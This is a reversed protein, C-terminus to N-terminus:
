QRGAASQAYAPILVASAGRARRAIAGVPYVGERARYIKRYEHRERLRGNKGYARDTFTPVPKADSRAELRLNARSRTAFGGVSERIVRSLRLLAMKM